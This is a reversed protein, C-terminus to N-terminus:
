DQDFELHFNKGTCSSQFSGDCAVYFAGAAIGVALALGIIMGFLIKM